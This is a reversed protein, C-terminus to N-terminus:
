VLVAAVTHQDATAVEVEPILVVMAVTDLM